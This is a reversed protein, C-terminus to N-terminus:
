FFIAGSILLHLLGIVICSLGLPIQYMELLKIKSDYKKLLEQAKEAAEGAKDSLNPKKLLLEKGLFLGVAIASVEPIIDSFIVFRLLFIQLVAGLLSLAGIILVIVGIANALPTLKEYVKNLQPVKVKILPAAALLGAIINGIALGLWFLTGFFGGGSSSGGGGPLNKRRMVWSDGVTTGTFPPAKKNDSTVMSIEYVIVNNKDKNSAIAAYLPLGWKITQGLINKEVSWWNGKLRVALIEVSKKPNGGWDKANKLYTLAAAELKKPNGPGAFNKFPEPWKREDREKEIKDQAGKAEKDISDLKEKVQKNNPDFKYALELQEKIEAYKKGRIAESYFSMRGLNDNASKLINAATNKRTAAVNDSFKKLQEYCYGPRKWSIQKTVIKNINNDIDNATTGYKKSFINLIDNIAPLHKEELEEIIKLNQEYNNYFCASNFSSMIDQVSDHADVLQKWDKLTEEESPAALSNTTIFLVITSVFFLLLNKKM